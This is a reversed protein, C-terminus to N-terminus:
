SVITSDRGRGFLGALGILGLLGWLGIQPNSTYNSTSSTTTGTTTTTAPSAATTAQAFAVGPMMALGAALVVGAVYKGISVKMSCSRWFLKPPKLLMRVREVLSGF